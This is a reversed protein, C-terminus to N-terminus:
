DCFQSGYYTSDQEVVYPLYVFCAYQLVFYKRQTLIRGILSLKVRECFWLKINNSYREPLLMFSKTPVSPSTLTSLLFQLQFLVLMSFALRKLQPLFIYYNRSINYFFFIPLGQCHTSDEHHLTFSVMKKLSQKSFVM